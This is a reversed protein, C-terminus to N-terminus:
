RCPRRMPCNTCSVTQCASRCPATGRKDIVYAILVAQPFSRDSVPMSPKMSM